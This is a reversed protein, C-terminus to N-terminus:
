SPRHHVYVRNALGNADLFMIEAVILDRHNRYVLTVSSVGAMVDILTFRLTSDKELSPEFYARLDARTRITGDSRGLRTVVLPSVFELDEAYHTLIRELDHANWAEIWDAAITKAQQMEIM